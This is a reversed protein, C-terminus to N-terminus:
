IMQKIGEWEPLINEAIVVRFGGSDIGFSTYGTERYACRAHKKNFSFAGGRFMVEKSSSLDERGDNKDYPYPKMQSNCMEWVNGCMNFLGYPSKGKSYSDVPMTQDLGSEKCNLKSIDWKNGWPYIRGDTGRAAKEWEAETPLRFLKGTEHRLWACFRVANLYDINTVPHNKKGSPANGGPNGGGVWHKPSLVPMSHTAYKKAFVEYQANTIPFLSIFFDPLFVTHQPLESNIAESDNKPNSGMLFEGAPIKVLEIEIPSTLVVNAGSKVTDKKKTIIAGSEENLGSSKITTSVKEKRRLRDFIGM